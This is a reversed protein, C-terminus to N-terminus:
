ETPQDDPAPVPTGNEPEIQEPPPPNHPDITVGQGPLLTSPDEQGAEADVYVLQGAEDVVPRGGDDVALRRGRLEAM